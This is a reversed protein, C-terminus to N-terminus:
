KQARAIEHLNHTLNDLDIEFWSPYGEIREEIESPTPQEALYNQAM